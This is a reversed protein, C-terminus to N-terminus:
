STIFKNYQISQYDFARKKKYAVSKKEILRNIDNVFLM